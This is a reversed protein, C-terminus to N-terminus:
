RDNTRALWLSLRATRGRRSWHNVARAAIHNPGEHIPWDIWRGTPLFPGRGDFQVEFGALNPNLSYLAVSLRPEKPPLDAPVDVAIHTRGLPPYVDALRETMLFTGQL